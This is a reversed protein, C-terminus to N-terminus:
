KKSSALGWDKDPTSSSKSTSSTALGEQKKFQKLGKNYKHRLQRAVIQGVQEGVTKLIIDIVVDFPVEMDEAEFVTAIKLFVKEVHKNVGDILIDKIRNVRALRDGNNPTSNIARLDRIYDSINMRGIRTPHEPKEYWDSYIALRQIIAIVRNENSISSHNVFKEIARMLPSYGHADRQNVFKHRSEENLRKVFLDISDVKSRWSTAIFHLVNAKDDNLIYQDAGAALLIIIAQLDGLNAATMLPTDGQKTPRNIDIRSTKLLTRMSNHQQQDVALTLMNTKNPPSNVNVGHKILTKLVDENRLITKAQRRLFHTDNVDAGAYIANVMANLLKQHRVPDNTSRLADIQRIIHELAVTKRQTQTTASMIRSKPPLNRFYM